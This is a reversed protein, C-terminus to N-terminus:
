INPRIYDKWFNLYDECFANLSHEEEPFMRRGEEHHWLFLIMHPLSQMMFQYEENKMRLAKRARHSNRYDVPISHYHFGIWEHFIWFWEKLMWSQYGCLNSTSRLFDTDNDLIRYEVFYNIEYGRSDIYDHFEDIVQQPTIIENLGCRQFSQFLDDM